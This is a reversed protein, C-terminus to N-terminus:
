IVVFHEDSFYLVNLMEKPFSLGNLIAPGSLHLKDM